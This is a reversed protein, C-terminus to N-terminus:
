IISSYNTTRLFPNGCHRYYEIGETLSINFFKKEELVNLISLMHFIRNPPMGVLKKVISTLSPNKCVLRFLYFLNEFMKMDSSKCIPKPKGTDSKEIKEFEKENLYGNEVAYKYMETNKIPYSITVRPNDAHIKQNLKITLFVDEIKEGPNAVMNFTALKIGFKKIKKGAELIQRNTINKNLIVRRLRENGTEIGIAVGICGASSTWYTINNNILNATSNFTFPIDIEKKYEKCFNEVWKKDYNFLDDSFHILKLPYNDKVEKIEEIIKRVSKKRTYARANYDKRLSINFCYSCSNPCGRGSSFRKMPMDRLFKYKYYLKRDPLPLDDLNEVVQSLPNRYIKGKQKVWLGHINKIQKSDELREVLELIPYEAEGRCVIDVYPHEIIEPYFTPHSGAFVIPACLLDKIEKSMRIAYKQGLIGFPFVILEPNFSRIKSLINKEEKEIFLKCRHGYFKLLASLETLALSENLGNDQVFVIKMFDM